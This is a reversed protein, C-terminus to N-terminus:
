RSTKGTIASPRRSPPSRHAVGRQEQEHREPDLLVREPLRGAPADQARAHSRFAGADRGRSRKGVRRGSDRDRPQARADLGPEPGTVDDARGLQDALVPGPCRNGSARQEDGGEATAAQPNM